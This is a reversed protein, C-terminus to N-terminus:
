VKGGRQHHDKMGRGMGHDPAAQGMGTSKMRMGDDMPAHGMKVDPHPVGGALPKVGFNGKDMAGAMAKHANVSNSSISGKGYM